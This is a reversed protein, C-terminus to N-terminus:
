EHAVLRSEATLTAPLQSINVSLMSLSNLDVLWIMKENYVAYVEGTVREVLPVNSIPTDVKFLHYGNEDNIMCRAFKCYANWPTPKTALVSQIHQFILPNKDESVSSWTTDDLNWTTMSKGDVIVFTHSENPLWLSTPSGVIVTLNNCPASKVDNDRLNFLCFSRSGIKSLTEIAAFKEDPSFSTHTITGFAETIKSSVIKKGGLIFYAHNGKYAIANEGSSSLNSSFDGEIYQGLADRLRVVLIGKTDNQTVPSITVVRKTAAADFDSIAVEHLSPICFYFAILASILLLLASVIVRHTSHKRKM